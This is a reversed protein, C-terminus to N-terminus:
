YYTTTRYIVEDAEFYEKGGKKRHVFTTSKKWNGTSDFEFDQQRRSALADRDKYELKEQIRGTDDYAYTFREASSGHPEYTVGVRRGADDYKYVFRAWREAAGTFITEEIRNGASDYKPVWKFLRSGDAAKEQRSSFDQTTPPGELRGRSRKEYRNATVTTVTCRITSEAKKKLQSGRQITHGSQAFSGADKSM